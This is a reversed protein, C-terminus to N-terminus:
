WRVTHPAARFQTELLFDKESNAAPSQEGCEADLRFDTMEILPMRGKGHQLAGATEDLLGPLREIDRQSDRSRSVEEGGVRCHGRAKITESRGEDPLVETTIGLLIEPYCEM